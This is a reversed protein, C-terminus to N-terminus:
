KSLGQFFHGKRATKGQTETTSQYNVTCTVCLASIKDYSLKLLSNMVQLSVTPSPLFLLAVASTMAPSQAPNSTALATPAFSVYFAVPLYHWNNGQVTEKRTREVFVSLQRASSTDQSTDTISKRKCFVNVASKMRSLVSCFIYNFWCTM